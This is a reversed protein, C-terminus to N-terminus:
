VVDDVPPVHLLLVADTPVISAVVPTSVPIVDPVVVIVYASLAPQIEVNTTDTVAAGAAMVPLEVTQRPNVVGILWLTGPPAHLLLVGATPEILAPVPRAPPTLVPVVVIVYKSGM